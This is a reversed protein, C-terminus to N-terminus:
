KYLYNNIAERIEQYDMDHQYDNLIKRMESQQNTRIHSDTVELEDDYLWELFEGAGYESSLIFTVAPTNEIETREINKIEINKARNDFYQNLSLKITKM